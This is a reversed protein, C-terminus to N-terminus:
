GAAPARLASRRKVRSRRAGKYRARVLLLCICAPILALLPYSHGSRLLRPIIGAQPLRAIVVGKVQSLAVAQPDNHGVADGRTVLNQGDISVIRHTVLGGTSQFPVVDGPALSRSLFGGPPGVIVVDGLNVAPQMSKGLVVYAHYGPSVFLFLTACVALALGAVVVSLLTTVLAGGIHRWRRNGRAM